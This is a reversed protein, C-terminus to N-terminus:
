VKETEMIEDDCGSTESQGTRKEVKTSDPSFEDVVDAEFEVHTMRETTVAIQGMPTDRPHEADVDAEIHTTVMAKQKEADDQQTVLMDGNSQRKATITGGNTGDYPRDSKRRTASKYPLPTSPRNRDVSTVWHLVLVSFLVLIILMSSKM